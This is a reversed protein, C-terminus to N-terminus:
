TEAAAIEALLASASVFAAEIRGRIWWDGAVGLGRRRDFFCRPGSQKPLNAFRWRHVDCHAAAHGDIGSVRHVESLMHEIVADKSREMNAEAWRNTAHVVVTAAANRGPKSSNVSIWSVDAERVLAADFGTAPTEGFGLMLAYCGLMSRDGVVHALGPQEGVLRLTQVLPATVLLMDYTGPLPASIGDIGGRLSWGAASHTVETVTTELHVDLGAALARGIANMRPVGVYHPYEDSWRRTATVEPGSLEAFRAPWPGVQGADILPKLFDRFAATRTTFFQAGHDFEYDGAYRTAMRGGCGRSKEFLTVAHAERLGHALALGTLGAGIIAIRAM